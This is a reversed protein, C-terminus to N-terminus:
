AAKRVQTVSARAAVRSVGLVEGARDTVDVGHELEHQANGVTSVAGACGVALHPLVVGLPRLRPVREVARLSALAVGCAALTSLGYAQLMRRGDLPRSTDAYNCYRMGASHSQFLWHFWLVGSPAKSSLMGLCLTATVPMFSCLRFASPIPQELVPHMVQETVREAAELQEASAGRPAKLLALADHAKADSPLLGRVDWRRLLRHLRSRYEDSPLLAALM